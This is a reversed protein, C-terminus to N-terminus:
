GDSALHFVLDRASHVGGLRTGRDDLNHLQELPQTIVRVKREVSGAEVGSVIVLFFDADYVARLAESETLHIEDPEAGGFVFLAYFSRLEDIADVGVGRQARLDIMAEDGGALVQRALRLGITDVSDAEPNM